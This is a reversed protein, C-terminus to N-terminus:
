EEGLLRDIERLEAELTQRREALSQRDDTNRRCFGAGRGMGRGGCRMGRGFGTGRGASCNGRGGGTMPGQGAPGTGDFRPM